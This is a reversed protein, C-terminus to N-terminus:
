FTFKEGVAGGEHRDIGSRQIAVFNKAFETEEAYLLVVPAARHLKKARRLGNEVMGIRQERQRRLPFKAIRAFTRQLKTGAETMEGRTLWVIVVLPNRENRWLEGYSVAWSNVKYYVPKTQGPETPDPLPPPAAPLPPPTAPLEGM